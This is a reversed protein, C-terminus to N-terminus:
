GAPGYGAPVSATDVGWPWQEWPAREGFVVRRLTRPADDGVRRRAHQVSLNDWVVLDGNSWRHEYVNDPAYLVAFLRDLLRDGATDDWGIIAATMMENVFLCGEGNAPHPVVVPHVVRPWSPDLHRLGARGHEVESTTTTYNATFLAQLGALQAQDSSTLQRYARRGSAFRTAAQGPAVELGYLSLGALPTPVHALDSHFALEFRGLSGGPLVNSVHTVIPFPGAPRDNVVVRPGQPLLRGFVAVLRQHEADDLETRFVLLQHDVLARRLAAADADRLEGPGTGLEVEAGFPAGELPRTVVTTAV